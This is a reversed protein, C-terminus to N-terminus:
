VEGFTTSEQVAHLPIHQRVVRSPIVLSSLGTTNLTEERVIVGGFEGGVNWGCFIPSYKKEYRTLFVRSQYVVASDFLRGTLNEHVNDFPMRCPQVPADDFLVASISRGLVPAATTYPAAAIAEPNEEPDYITMNKGVRGNVPKTLYPSSIIEKTRYFSAPVMNPHHPAVAYMFPLIAKSGTVAKWLPELVRIHENLLIDSLTPKTSVGHGEQTRQEMYQQVVTDWAWTKWVLLVKENELDVVSRRETPSADLDVEGTSSGFRFDSLKVCLKTRFGVSEAANMVYLATYREEDNDDIMFHVIKHHPCLCENQMLCSFYNVIRSYLFSGTSNGLKVGYHRTFKEQTDGCELMAASSDCKYALMMIEKGDYGFDFRGCMSPITEFSRRLQLHLETPLGFYQVLLAESDRSNLILRTTEMAVEHLKKTAFRFRCWMDYDMIYFGDPVSHAEAVADEGMYGGVTLSRKLFFDCRQSPNLWPLLFERELHRRVIHGPGLIHRYKDPLDGLSFDYSPAKISVWGLLHLEGVFVTVGDERKECDFRRSYNKGPQWRKFEYNQEAVWVRKDSVHTVVALHGYPFDETRSWVLLDGVSPMNTTEGHKEREMPVPTGTPVSIFVEDMEWIDEATPISALWVGKTMLLYRRTFELCLWQYGLTDYTGIVTTSTAAEIHRCDPALSIRESFFNKEGNSFVPVGSDTVGIVGGFSVHETESAHVGRQTDTNDM